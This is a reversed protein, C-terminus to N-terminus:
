YMGPPVLSGSRVGPSTSVSAVKMVVSVENTSLGGDELDDRCIGFGLRPGGIAPGPAAPKSAPPVMSLLPRWPRSPLPVVRPVRGLPSALGLPRPIRHTPTLHTYGSFLRHCGPNPQVVTAPLGKTSAMARGDSLRASYHAAFCVACKLM